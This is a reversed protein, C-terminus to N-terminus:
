EKVYLYLALLLRLIQLLCLFVDDWIVKVHWLRHVSLLSYNNFILLVAHWVVKNDVLDLNHKALPLLTVQVNNDVTQEDLHLGLRPQLDGMTPKSSQWEHPGDVQNIHLPQLILEDGAITIAIPHQVDRHVVVLGFQQVDGVVDRIRPAAELPRGIVAKLCLEGYIGVKGYKSTLHKVHPLAVMAEYCPPTM